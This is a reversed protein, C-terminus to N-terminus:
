RVTLETTKNSQNGCQNRWVLGTERRKKVPNSIGASGGARKFFWETGTRRRESFSELDVPFTTTAVDLYRAQLFRALYVEM